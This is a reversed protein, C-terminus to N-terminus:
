YSTYQNVASLFFRLCSVNNEFFISSILSTLLLAETLQISLKEQKSYHPPNTIKHFPITNQYIIYVKDSSIHKASIHILSYQFTYIKLFLSANIQKIISHYNLKCTLFINIYFLPSFIFLVM